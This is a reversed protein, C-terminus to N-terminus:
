EYGIDIKLIFTTLGTELDRKYEMTELGDVWDTNKLLKIWTQYQSHNSSNGEVFLIHDVVEYALGKEILPYIDIKSFKVQYPRLYALQDAYYTMSGPRSQRSLIRKNNEFTKQLDEYINWKLENTSLSERLINAEKTYHSFVLFNLLLVIFLTPLVWLSVKKIFHTINYSENQENLKLKSDEYTLYPHRFHYIESIVCSLAVISKSDIPYTDDSNLHLELLQANDVMEEHIYEGDWNFNLGEWKYYGPKLDVGKFYNVLKNVGLSLSAIGINEKNIKDIWMQAMDKRIALVHHTNYVVFTSIIYDEIQGFGFHQDLSFTSLENEDLVFFDKLLINGRINLLLYKDKAISNIIDNFSQDELICSVKFNNKKLRTVEHLNLRYNTRSDYIIELVYYTKASFVTHKHIDGLM